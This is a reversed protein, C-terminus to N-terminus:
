KDSSAICKRAVGLWIGCPALPEQRWQALWCALWEGRLIIRIQQNTIRTSCEGTNFHSSSCGPEKRERTRVTHWCTRGRDLFTIGLNHSIRLSQPGGLYSFTTVTCRNEIEISSHADRYNTFPQFCKAWVRNESLGGMKPRHGAFILMRFGFVSANWIPGMIYFKSKRSISIVIKILNWYSISIMARLLISLHYWWSSLPLSKFLALKYTILAHGLNNFRLGGTTHRNVNWFISMKNQARIKPHLFSNVLCRGIFSLNKFVSYSYFEHLIQPDWM